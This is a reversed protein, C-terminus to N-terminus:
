RLQLEERPVSTPLNLDEHLERIVEGADRGTESNNVDDSSAQIAAVNEAMDEPTGERLEKGQSGENDSLFPGSGPTPRVYEM